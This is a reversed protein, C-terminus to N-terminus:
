PLLPATCGPGGESLGVICFGTRNSRAPATRAMERPKAPEGAARAASMRDRLRVLLEGLDDFVDRLFRVNDSVYQTPTNIEHAIGAALQGLGELKQAQVLQSQADRLQALAAGLDTRECELKRIVDELVETRRRVKEELHENMLRLRRTLLSNERLIRRHELSRQIAVILGDFQSTKVVYDFAGLRMADLVVDVEATASLMIVPSFPCWQILQPLLELGSMGPMSLDVVFVDFESSKARELAAEGSPATIVRYGRRSLRGSVLRCVVPSDDVVLVRASYASGADAEAM